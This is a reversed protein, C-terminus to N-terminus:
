GDLKATIADIQERAWDGDGRGEVLAVAHDILEDVDAEHKQHHKMANVLTGVLNYRKTRICVLAMYLLRRTEDLDKRDTETLLEIDLEDINDELDAM